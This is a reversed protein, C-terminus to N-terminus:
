TETVYPIHNTRILENRSEDLERDAGCRRCITHKCACADCMRPVATNHWNQVGTCIECIYPTFMHGAIRTQYFCAVCENEAIRRDRQPDTAQLEVMNVLEQVRRRALHTRFKVDYELGPM